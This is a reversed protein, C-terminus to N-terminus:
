VNQFYEKILRIDEATAKNIFDNFPIWNEPKEEFECEALARMKGKLKRIYVEDDQELILSHKGWIDNSVRHRVRQNFLTIYKEEIEIVHVINRNEKVVNVLDIMSENM